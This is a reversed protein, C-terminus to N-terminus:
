SALVLDTALALLLLPGAAPPGAAQACAMELHRSCAPPAVLLLPKWGAVAVLHLLLLLLQMLDLSELLATTQRKLTAAGLVQTAAM